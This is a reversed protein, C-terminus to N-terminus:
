DRFSYLPDDGSRRGTAELHTTSGEVLPYTNGWDIVVHRHAIRWEGERREFRDLYRGAHGEQLLGDPKKFRFFAVFYTETHAVGDDFEFLTQGLVIPAAELGISTSEAVTAIFGEVPGSVPIRNRPRGTDIADPWYVSRLLDM